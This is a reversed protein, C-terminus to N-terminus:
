LNNRRKLEIITSQDAIKEDKLQDMEDKLRTASILFSTYNGAYINVLVEIWECVKEKTINRVNLYDCRLSAADKVGAAQCM